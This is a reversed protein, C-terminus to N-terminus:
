NRSGAPPFCLEMKSGADACARKTQEIANMMASSEPGYNGIWSIGNVVSLGACLFCFIGFYWQRQNVAIIVLLIAFLACGAVTALVMGFWDHNLILERHAVDLRAGDLVGSIVADRRANISDTSTAATTVVGWLAGVAIILSELGESVLKSNSKNTQAPKAAATADPEPDRRGFLAEWLRQVRSGEAM